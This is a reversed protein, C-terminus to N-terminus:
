KTQIKTIAEEITLHTRPMLFRNILKFILYIFVASIVTYVWAKLLVSTFIKEVGEYGWIQYYFRYDLRCQIYSVASTLLIYNVFKHKLYLEFLLSILISFITLLVANYGFLRGCATDILFGCIAATVVAGYRNNEAAICMAIPILLIPKTWTGSTMIIFSFFILVYYLTWRLIGKIYFIRKERTTKIRM